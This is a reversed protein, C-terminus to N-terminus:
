LENLIVCGAEYDISAFVIVDSREQAIEMPEWDLRSNIVFDKQNAELSHVRKSRTINFRHETRVFAGRIKTSSRGIEKLCRRSPEGGHAVASKQDVGWLEPVGERLRDLGRFREGDEFFPQFCMEKLFGKELILFM